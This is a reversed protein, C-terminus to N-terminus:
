RFPLRLRLEAEGGRPPPAYGWGGHGYYYPVAYGPLVVVPPPRYVRPPVIVVPPGYGRYHHRNHRHNWGHDHGRGHRKWGRDRDAEAVSAAGVVMAMALLATTAIKRIM